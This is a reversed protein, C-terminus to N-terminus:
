PRLELAASRLSATIEWSLRRVEPVLVDRAGHRALDNAVCQRVQVWDCEPPIFEHGLQANFGLEDDWLVMASAILGREKHAAWCPPTVTTM